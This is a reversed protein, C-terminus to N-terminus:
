IWCLRGDQQTGHNLKVKPQQGTTTLSLHSFAAPKVFDLRKQQFLKEQAGQLWQCEATQSMHVKWETCIQTSPASFPSNCQSLQELVAWMAHFWVERTQLVPRDLQTTYVSVPLLAYSEYFAVLFLASNRHGSWEFCSYLGLFISNRKEENRDIFQGLKSNDCSNKNLVVHTIEALSIFVQNHLTSSFLFLDQWFSLYLLSIVGITKSDTTYCNTPLLWLKDFPLNETGPQEYLTKQPTSLHQMKAQNLGLWLNNETEINWLSKVELIQDRSLTSSSPSQPCPSIHVLINTTIIKGAPLLQAVPTRSCHGFHLIRACPM